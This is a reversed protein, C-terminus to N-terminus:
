RAVAHEHGVEGAREVRRPEVSRTFAIEQVRLAIEGADGVGFNGLLYSIDCLLGMRRIAMMPVPTMPALQVASKRAFPRSTTAVSTAGSASAAKFRKTAAAHGASCRIPSARPADCSLSDNVAASVDATFSTSRTWSFPGSFISKLFVRYRWSSSSSCGLTMMAELEDPKVM